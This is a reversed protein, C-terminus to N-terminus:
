SCASSRWNQGAAAKKESFHEWSSNLIQLEGALNSLATSVSENKNWKNKVFERFQPHEFWAALFRFPRNTPLGEYNNFRLLIPAHDSFVRHQHFVAAEPYSIRWEMNSLARDLRRSTRTHAYNGRAWTYKSGVFGLDILGLENIWEAFRFRRNLLGGSGSSENSNTIANFDGILLWPDRISNALERMNNWFSRGEVSSPNRYIITLVWRENNLNSVCVHLFQSSEQLVTITFSNKQWLLWIGGRMGSAEIRHCGDFGLRKCTQEAKRGSIKPEVVGLFNVKHQKILYKLHGATENNGIGCLNWFLLSM